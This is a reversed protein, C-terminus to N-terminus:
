KSGQNRKTFEGVGKFQTARTSFGVKAALDAEEFGRTLSVEQTWSGVLNEGATFTDTYGEIYYRKTSVYPVDNRFKLVKGIKVDNTGAKEISGSEGFVAPNWYDYIIENFEVLQTMDAIGNGLEENKVISDVTIHMPRFGHRRISASNNRPFGKGLLLSINDEIAIMTTSVTVLFSNYRNNDDEGLHADYLDIAPVWVIPELKNYLPINQANKPYNSQDIGWPIPRFTLQPKGDDTTECFLEHFQPISLRRLQEWSNGSLYDGPKDVAIGAGTPSFNKIGPLAGWYTGKALGTLSFGADILMEKPLLWQLGISLLSKNDNPKAGPINLPYYFMDHILDIAEHIRVNGTVNLKTQAIADLMIKDYQFLNHWINTEEYIIGFDRGTVTFGVNLSRNEETTLDVGVRDVYGMCRIKKAESLKPRSQSVTQSLQLDGENSMYILLWYGRKIIDKWDNTGYNPSNSLTISFSGAAEGMNKSFTVSQVQSSIDIRGAEALSADDLDPDNLVEKWPYVIVKCQSYLHKTANSFKFEKQNAM